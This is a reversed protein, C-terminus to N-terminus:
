HSTIPQVDAEPINFAIDSHHDVIPTLLHAGVENWEYDLSDNLRERL